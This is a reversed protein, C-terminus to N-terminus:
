HIYLSDWVDAGFYSVHSINCLIFISIYAEYMRAMSDNQVKAIFNKVVEKCFTILVSESSKDPKLNCYWIMMCLISM